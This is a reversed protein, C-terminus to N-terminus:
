AIKEETLNITPEGGNMKLEDLWAEYSKDAKLTKQAWELYARHEEEQVQWWFDSM